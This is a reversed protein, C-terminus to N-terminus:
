LILEDTARVGAYKVSKALTAAMRTNGQKLGELVVSEMEMSYEVFLRGVCEAVISRIGEKEHTTQSILLKLLEGVYEKLCQSDHMIIERITNLFLYKQQDQAQQILSFVEKLFHDPNGVAINGLSISAAARV